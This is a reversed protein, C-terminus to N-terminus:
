VLAQSPMIFNTGFHHAEGFILPYLCNSPLPHRIQCKIKDTKRSFNYRCAGFISMANHSTWHRADDKCRHIGVSICFLPFFDPVGKEHDSEQYTDLDTIHHSDSLLNAPPTQENEAIM